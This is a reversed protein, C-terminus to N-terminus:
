LMFGWDFISFYYYFFRQETGLHTKYQQRPTWFLLESQHFLAVKEMCGLQIEHHFLHSVLSQISSHDVSKLRYLFFLTSTEYINKKGKVDWVFLLNIERM